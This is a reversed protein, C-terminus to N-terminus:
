NSLLKPFKYGATILSQIWAQVLVVDEIQFYGHEYMMIWLEEIRGPLTNTKPQWAELQEVLKGAKKYLPGESDFDALYNHANRDQQVMPPSFLLRLGLDQALRIYLYGRWIDSVRGHVTVPLLLSWLANYMHLTAQANYPTYVGKPIAVTSKGTVALETFFDFPLPQTLRYIADVDPDHNALSQIVGITSSPLDVNEFTLESYNAKIDDLPYGRPWCPKTPTGMLPYPNFIKKELGKPELVPFTDVSM